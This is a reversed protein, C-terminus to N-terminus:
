LILLAPLDHAVSSLHYKGLCPGSPAPTLVFRATQTLVRM